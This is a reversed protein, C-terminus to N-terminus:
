ALRGGARLEDIAAAAEAQIRLLALVNERSRQNLGCETGIGFGAVFRGAAEARKLTGAVGDGEHVLGLYLETGRGLDLDRLPAFYTEDSRDQPVPMHIFQVPRNLGDMVANMVRVMESMDIPEVFHKLNLNGYCCHFGLEVDSPVAGGLRILMAVIEDRTMPFFAASGSALYEFEHAVDWQIALEDHPVADAVEGIEGLLHREYAPLVAAYDQHAIAFNLIDYVTPVPVLLRAEAAVRGDRKLESLIGYAEAADAAYGAREFSTPPAAGPRLRFRRRRQGPTRSDATEEHAFEEFSPHAAFVKHHALIWGRTLGLDGNSLRKVRDGFLDATSRLAEDVSALDM